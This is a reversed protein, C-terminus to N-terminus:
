SNVNLYRKPNEIILLRVQEENLGKNKMEPLINSLIHDYGWGGYKHLKYKMCVDGGLLIREIYGKDILKIITKIRYMDSPTEVELDLTDVEGFADFGIYAGAKIIKEYYNFDYFGCDLHCIYVKELNAGSKSLIKLTDLALMKSVDMHVIIPIGLNHNVKAAAKLVKEEEPFIKESTGLEGIIGARIGTDGIGYKIERTMEEGIERVSMNKAKLPHFLKIYYGTGIIINIDLALSIKKLAIPDRGFDVTTPDVITKGGAKKFELLEMMAIGEDSLILNDKISLPKVRAIGLNEINLKETSLFHEAEAEPEKFYKLLNCFIHQHMDVIKLENENIEGNVTIVSM